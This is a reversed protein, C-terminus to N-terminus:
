NSNGRKYTSARLPLYLLCISFFGTLLIPVGILGWWSKYIIGLAIVVVGIVIRLIRDLGGVNKKM